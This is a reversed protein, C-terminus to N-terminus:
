GHGAALHDKLAAKDIKGNQTLPLPDMFVLSRPCMYWPLADSISSLVEQDDIDDRPGEIFAVLADASGPATEPWGIVAVGKRGTIRTILACVEGPEVRHGRIQVQEDVRGIFCYAGISKDFCARDGTRYFRGDRGPLEQFCEKTRQEDNWYGRALQPGTLWIEGATGEEVENGDEDLLLMRSGELPMGIPLTAAGELDHKGPDWRFTSFSVTGETPGYHNEISANPAAVRCQRVLEMPLSEGGFGWIRLSPFMGPELMGLRAVQATLSPVFVWITIAERKIFEHPKMFDMDIPVCLTAGVEWAAWIDLVSGDFTTEPFQAIRDDERYGSLATVRSIYHAASGHEVVVGKPEGSSGSTFLIYAIDDMAVRPKTWAEAPLLEDKGIFCQSPWRKSYESVDARHPLIWTRPTADVLEELHREGSEDMFIGTVGTEELMFRIRSVPHRPNLPFYGHGRMLAALMGSYATVSRRALIGTLGSAGPDSAAMTAGLRAALGALERYTLESGGVRLAPHEPRSEANRLFGSFLPEHEQKITM